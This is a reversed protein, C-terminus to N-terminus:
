PKTQQLKEAEHGFFIRHFHTFLEPKPVVLWDRLTRASHEPYGPFGRPWDMRLAFKPDKLSNEEWRTIPYLKSSLDKVYFSAGPRTFQMYNTATESDCNYGKGFLVQRLFHCADTLSGGSKMWGKAGCMAVGFCNRLVAYCLPDDMSRIPENRFFTGLNELWPPFVYGFRDNVKVLQAARTHVEGIFVVYPMSLRVKRDVWIVNHVGPEIELVFRYGGVVPRVVRVGDPIIDQAPPNNESLFKYMAGAQWLETITLEDTQM